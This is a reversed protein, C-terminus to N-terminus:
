LSVIHTMNALCKTDFQVRIFGSDNEDIAKKIDSFNDFINTKDYNYHTHKAMHELVLLIDVVWRM